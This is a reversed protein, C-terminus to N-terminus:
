VGGTDSSQRKLIRASTDRVQRDYATAFARWFTGTTREGLELKLRKHTEIQKQTVGGTFRALGSDSKLKEPDLADLVALVGAEIGAMLAMEHSQLDAMVERAAKEPPMYGTKQSGFMRSFADGAHISFKLPNNEGAAIITTSLRLESRIASRANILNLTGAVLERLLKGLQEATEDSAVADPLTVGLQDILRALGAEAVADSGTKVAASATNDQESQHPNIPANPAPEAHPSPQDSKRDEPQDPDHTDAADTSAPPGQDELLSVDNEDVEWWNEPIASESVKPPAFAEELSGIPASQMDSEAFSVDDDDLAFPDNSKGLDKYPDKDLNKLSIPEPELNGPAIPSVEEAVSSAADSRASHDFGQYDRLEDKANISVSLLFPGIRLTDGNELKTKRGKGIPEQDDNLFTGHTSIDKVYFREDEFSIRAHERSIIREPDQIHMHCDASRGIMGGKPGFKVTSGQSGQGREVTMTLQV